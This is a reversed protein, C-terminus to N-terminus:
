NESKSTGSHVPLIGELLEASTVRRSFAFPTIRPLVRMCSSAKPAVVILGLPPGTSLGYLLRM